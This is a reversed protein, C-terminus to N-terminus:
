LQLEGDRCIIKQISSQYQRWSSETLGLKRAERKTGKYVISTLSDCGSFANEGISRVGKGITVSTLSYCDSFAWSGISTVSNPIEISTLNSCHAFAQDGISTVSNGTVVSTLSKCHIFADSSIETATTLNVDTVLKNNIYLNEAYYVPNSSYDYFDIQAWQDVTGTYDVRTLKESNEFARFDIRTVSDPIKITKLNRCHSFAYSGIETVTDHITYDQIFSGRLYQYPIYDLQEAPDCELKLFLAALGKPPNMDYVEEWSKKTNKEILDINREIFKELDKRIKM